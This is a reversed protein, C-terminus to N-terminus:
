CDEQDIPITSTVKNTKLDFVTVVGKPDNGTIFGRNFEPAVAVGHIGKLGPIDAVVKHTGEDLVMVHTGRPIYIRHADPDVTVYDWGGEGGLLTQKIVHYGVRQAHFVAPAVTLLAVAFLLAKSRRRM